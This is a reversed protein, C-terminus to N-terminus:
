RYEWMYARDGYEDTHWLDGGSDKFTGDELGDQIFGFPAMDQEINERQDDYIRQRVDTDNMERFYDQLALWSFIVLCMALDDNCGDEAEFSQGKQIFTTLESIIDYDSILLKDEEILAKMNSCGVKKVVTSMKVGMQTKKGSFGQGVIQGARGRMSAMLLNDYELDFHIIDAVQGGIDNVEVLIYAGNYNKAVDVIVNPFLIPKITNNKYKAVMKYPLTTTDIVVFASYDSSVGRAVDCAIVYQHDKQSAEFIDLGANSKIPDDYAMIKLKSPSILTDVSGLFECEFEVKFQAESTNAITQAKWKDDRGPIESWHVETSIYENKKRESDHWLKYFMNMGHPTSIIIVKTSKGSSITPYVSSFFEDAIHNPVFAFEDLFIVNFSMGRVASSSTSAAMIKSGNELELSGRNWQIIGQQLWKPLHEYSKQLRQLMERSTAAKNALIAVNVEQNFLVYWLLYSTVITSKGSQRPLKAINFRNTHFKDVMETQFPYMEFPILGLDLSVIKVYTKIFYVPDESCKIYEAIQDKTFDQAVNAKKLNPNGLYVENNSM